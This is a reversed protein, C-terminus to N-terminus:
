CQSKRQVVSSFLGFLGDPIDPHDIHTVRTANKSLTFNLRLPTFSRLVKGTNKMIYNLIYYQTKVVLM